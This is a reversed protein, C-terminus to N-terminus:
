PPSGKPDEGLTRSRWKSVPNYPPVLTHKIGNSACFLKFEGATFQPGNDSVIEEPISFTAFKDRLIDVTRRNNHLRDAGGGDM